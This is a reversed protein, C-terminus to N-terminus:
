CNVGVIKAPAIELVNGRKGPVAGKVLMFEGEPDIKLIELKRIKRRVNGMHGAMKMGPFVRSPTASGCGISGHERKSKSGHTMNGRKHNWRKIAGQFGKGITTGAIDVKDGVKFIENVDLKQGPKFQAVESPNFKWERMVRLPACDYKKLHMKEPKTINKEKVPRYATQVAAYGDSEQNKVQAVVNGEEFGIITCGYALGEETFFTTMEVKTGFLGVGAEPARATITKIPKVRRFTASSVNVAAINSGNGRM